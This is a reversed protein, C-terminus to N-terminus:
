ASVTRQITAVVKDLPLDDAGGDFPNEIDTAILELAVLVYGVPLVLLITWWGLDDAVLWPLSLLYLALGKRMLSVYSAALPTGRIRECAGSVDMLKKAHEDLSLFGFGDIVGGAKWRVLHDYVEAATGLPHHPGPDSSPRALYTRLEAAFRALLERVQSVGVQDAAALRASKLALNRSENVLTGWLGRAEYWREYSARARFHMFWGFLLSGLLLEGPRSPAMKGDPPRTWITAWEVLVTYGALFVLYPWLRSLVPFRFVRHVHRLIKTPM